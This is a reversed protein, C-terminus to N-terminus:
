SSLATFTHKPQVPCLQPLASFCPPYFIGSFITTRTQQSIVGRNAAAVVMQVCVCIGLGKGELYPLLLIKITIVYVRLVTKSMFVSISM